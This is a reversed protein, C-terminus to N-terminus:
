NMQYTEDGERIKHMNKRVSALIEAMGFPKPIFADAGALFASTKKEHSYDASMLIITVDSCARIKRCAEIAPAAEYDLLVLDHKRAESLEVAECVDGTNTVEYGKAALTIQLARVISPGNSVVLISGESM